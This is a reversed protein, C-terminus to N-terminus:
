CFAVTFQCVVSKYMIYAASHTLMLMSYAVHAVAPLGEMQESESQATGLGCPPGEFTVWFASQSTKLCTLSQNKSRTGETLWM